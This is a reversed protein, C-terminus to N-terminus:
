SFSYQFLLEFEESRRNVTGQTLYMLRVICISGRREHMLLCALLIQNIQTHFSTQVMEVCTLVADASALSGELIYALGLSLFSETIASARALIQHPLSM